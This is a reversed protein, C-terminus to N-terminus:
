RAREIGTGSPSSTAASNKWSANSGPVHDGTRTGDASLVTRADASAPNLAALVVEVSTADPLRVPKEESVGPAMSARRFPAGQTM